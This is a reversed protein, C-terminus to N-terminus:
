LPGLREEAKRFAELADKERKSLHEQWSGCGCCAGNSHSARAGGEISEVLKGAVERWKQVESSFECARMIRHRHCPYKVHSYEEPDAGDPIVLIDHPTQCRIMKAVGGEPKPEM